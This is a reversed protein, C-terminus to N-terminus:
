EVLENLLKLVAGFATAGALVAADISEINDYTLVGAVGGAILAVTLLVLTRLTLLPPPPPPIQAM